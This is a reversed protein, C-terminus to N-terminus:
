QESVAGWLGDCMPQKSGLLESCADACLAAAGGASVSPRPANPTAQARVEPVLTRAASFGVLAAALTQGLLTFHPWCAAALWRTHSLPVLTLDCTIDLGFQRKVLAKLDEPAMSKAVYIVIQVNVPGRTPARCGIGSRQSCHAGPQHSTLRQPELQGSSSDHTRVKAKPCRRSITDV